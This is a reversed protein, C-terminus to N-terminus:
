TMIAFISIDDNRLFLKALWIRGSFTSWDYEINRLLQKSNSYIPMWVGNDRLWM